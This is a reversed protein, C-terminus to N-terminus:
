PKLMDPRMLLRIIYCHYWPILITRPICVIATCIANGRVIDRIGRIYTRRIVLVVTKSTHFKVKGRPVKIDIAM